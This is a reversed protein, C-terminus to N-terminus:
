EGAQTITNAATGNICYTTVGGSSTSCSFAQAAATTSYVASTFQGVNTTTVGPHVCYKVPNLPSTTTCIWAPGGFKATKFALAGGIVGFVAIAMLMIKAKKM